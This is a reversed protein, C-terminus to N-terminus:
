LYRFQLLNYEWHKEEVKRNEKLDLFSKYVNPYGKKRIEIKWRGNKKYIYAM